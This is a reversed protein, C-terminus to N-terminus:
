AVFGSAHHNERTVWDAHTSRGKGAFKGACHATKFTKSGACHRAKPDVTVTPAPADPRPNIRLYSM